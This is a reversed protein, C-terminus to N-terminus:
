SPIPPGRPFNDFIFAPSFYILQEAIISFCIIPKIISSLTYSTVIHNYSVFTLACNAKSIAVDLFLSVIWKRNTSSLM